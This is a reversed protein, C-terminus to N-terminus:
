RIAVFWLVVYVVIIGYTSIFMFAPSYRKKFLNVIVGIPSVIDLLLGRFLASIFSKKPFDQSFQQAMKKINANTQLWTFLMFLLYLGTACILALPMIRSLVGKGKVVISLLSVVITGLFVRRMMALFANM